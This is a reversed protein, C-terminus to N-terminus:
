VVSKVSEHRWLFGLTGNSSSANKGLKNDLVIFFLPYFNESRMYSINRELLKGKQIQLDPAPAGISDFM